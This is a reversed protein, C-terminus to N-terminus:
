IKNVSLGVAMFVGVGPVKKGADWIEQVAAANLRRQLLAFGGKSANKKVYEQIAEWDEATPVRKTTVQVRAVKGAVGVAESKPLNDILHQKLAAEDAAIADVQRQLKARLERLEYLKDACAGLKMKKPDLM